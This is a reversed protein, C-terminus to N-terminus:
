PPPRLLINSAPPETIHITAYRPLYRRAACGNLRAAKQNASPGRRGPDDTRVQWYRKILNSVRQESGGSLWYVFDAIM